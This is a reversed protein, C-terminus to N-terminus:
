PQSRLNRRKVPLVDAGELNDAWNFFCYGTADDKSLFYGVGETEPTEVFYLGEFHKVMVPFCADINEDDYPDFTTGAWVTVASERIMDAILDEIEGLLEGELLGSRFLAAVDRPDRGSFEAEVLALVRDNQALIKIAHDLDIASPYQSDM